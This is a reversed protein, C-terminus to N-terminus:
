VCSLRCEGDFSCRTTVNGAPRISVRRPKGGFCGRPGSRHSLIPRTKQPAALHGASVGVHTVTRYYDMMQMERIQRNWPSSLRPLAAHGRGIPPSCIRRAGFLAPRSPQLRSHPARARSACTHSLETRVFFLDPCLAPHKHTLSSQPLSPARSLLTRPATRLLRAAPREHPFACTARSARSATTCLTSASFPLRSKREKKEKPNIHLHQPFVGTPPYM